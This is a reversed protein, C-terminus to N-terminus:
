ELWRRARSQGSDEQDSHTPCWVEQGNGRTGNGRSSGRPEAGSTWYRGRRGGACGIGEVREARLTDALSIRCFLTELSHYGDSERALVRLLLNVKAHAALEVTSTM